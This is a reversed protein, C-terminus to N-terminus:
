GVRGIPGSSAAVCGVAGYRSREFPAARRRDPDNRVAFASRTPMRPTGHPPRSRPSERMLDAPASRWHEGALVLGRGGAGLTREQASLRPEPALHPRIGVASLAYVTYRARVAEHRRGASAHPCRGGGSFLGPVQSRRDPVIRLGERGGPRVSPNSPRRGAIPVTRVLHAVYSSVCAALRCRCGSGRTTDGAM